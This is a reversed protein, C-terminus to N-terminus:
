TDKDVTLRKISEFDFCPRVISAIADNELAHDKYMSFSKIAEWKICRCLEDSGDKCASVSRDIWRINQVVHFFVPLCVMLTIVMEWVQGKTLKRKNPFKEDLYRTLHRVLFRDLLM